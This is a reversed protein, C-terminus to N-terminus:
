SNNIKKCRQLSMNSKFLFYSTHVNIRPHRYTHVKKFLDCFGISHLKTRLEKLYDGNGQM